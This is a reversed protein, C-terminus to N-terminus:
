LIYKNKHKLLITIIINYFISIQVENFIIEHDRCKNNLIYNKHVNIYQTTCLKM